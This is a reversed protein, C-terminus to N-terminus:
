DQKGANDLRQLVRKRALGSDLDTVHLLGSVRRVLNAEYDDLVGDAYAVAWLMELLEIRGELDYGDKLIRTTTYLEVSRSQAEVGIQIVAETDVKSLGFHNQVSNSIIIRESVDLNGDMVAAEILLAVAAAQLTDNQDENATPSSSLADSGFLLTKIKKIM